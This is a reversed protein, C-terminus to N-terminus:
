REEWNKPSPSRRRSTQLEWTLCGTLSTWMVYPNEGEGWEATGWGILETYFGTAADPDSTLLEYWVFRGKLADDSM